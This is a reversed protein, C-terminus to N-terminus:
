LTTFFNVASPADVIPNKVIVRGAKAISAVGIGTLGQGSFVVPVVCNLESQLKVRLPPTIERPIVIAKTTAASIARANKIKPPTRHIREPPSFSFTSSARPVM